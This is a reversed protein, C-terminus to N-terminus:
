GKQATSSRCEKQAIHMSGAQAINQKHIYNYAGIKM